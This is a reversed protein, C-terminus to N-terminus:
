AVSTKKFFRRFALFGTMGIGLLALSAPEPVMPAGTSSYAQTIVSLSVGQSGGFLFIDKSVLISQVGTFSVLDSPSGGPGSASLTTIPAFTAANTLTESVVYSGTGGNLPGGTTSLFADNIKEGAPATVVYSISVDVMTGAAASLTGTLSIGTENGVAFNNVSITAAAPGPSGPPPSSSSSYTFSDFRLTEAGVAQTFTGSPLLKDLTTPLPVYGARADLAGLGLVVVGAALALFLSRRKM